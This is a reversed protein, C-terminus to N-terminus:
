VAEGDISSAVMHQHVRAGGYTRIRGLNLLFVFQSAVHWDARGVVMARATRSIIAM